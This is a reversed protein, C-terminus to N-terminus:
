KYGSLKREMIFNREQCPLCRANFWFREPLLVSVRVEFSAVTKPPARRAPQRPPKNSIICPSPRRPIIELTTMIIGRLPRSKSVARPAPPPPLLPLTGRSARRELASLVRWGSFFRLSWVGAPISWISQPRKGGGGGASRRALGRNVDARRMM